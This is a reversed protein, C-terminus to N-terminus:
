CVTLEVRPKQIVDEVLFICSEKPSIASELASSPYAFAPGPVDQALFYLYAWHIILFTLLLCFHLRSADGM